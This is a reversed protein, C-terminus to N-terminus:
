HARVGSTEERCYATLQHKTNEKQFSEQYRCVAAHLIYKGGISDRMSIISGGDLMDVKRQGIFLGYM